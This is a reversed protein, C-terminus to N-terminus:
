RNELFLAAALSARPDKRAPRSGSLSAAAAIFTRLRAIEPAASAAGPAASPLPIKEYLGAFFRDEGHYLRYLDLYANNVPLSSVGRYTESKFVGAYDRAFRERAAKIIAEKKARKEEGSVSSAYLTELEATLAGTFALFAARDARDADIGRYEGSDPGFRSEIYLRAGQTGVFEALQENFGSQGRIFVTAHLLEHIILDALQHPSYNKMYSYLPDRFWGLTSFADVGRIWVDLGQAKLRAAEKRADEPDFFGKYPLAGVVPFRWYHRTFSDAASASVVAALYDRDIEVYRTYNKSEKLGLEDLAFRRIDRVREVFDGTEGGRALKELPEARSLYGLMVAGQKLTYCGSFLFLGLILLALAALVPLISLCLGSVGAASGAAAWLPRSNM